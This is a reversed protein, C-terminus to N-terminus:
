DDAFNRADSMLICLYKFIDNYVENWFSCKLINGCNWLHMWLEEGRLGIQILPYLIMEEVLRGVFNCFLCSTHCIKRIQYWKIGLKEFFNVFSSWFQCMFLVSKVKTLCIYTCVSFAMTFKFWFTKQMHVISFCIKKVVRCLIGHNLLGYASLIKKLRVSSTLFTVSISVNLSCVKKLKMCFRSFSWCREKRSPWAWCM